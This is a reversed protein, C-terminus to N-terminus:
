YVNVGRKKRDKKAKKAKKDALKDLRKCERKLEGRRTVLRQIDKQTELAAEMRNGITQLEEILGLFSAYNHAKHLARMEQLVECYTRM